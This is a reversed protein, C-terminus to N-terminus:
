HSTRVKTQLNKAVAEAESLARIINGGLVKKIEAVSYGRELLKKTINPYTSVDELGVPLTPVGDYDSGLGVSDIGAVKKVHDIHDIVTDITGKPSPNEKVWQKMKTRIQKKPLKQKQLQNKYAYYKKGHEFAKKDVYASYFNIMVVGRNEGIQKLINDPINRPHPLLAYASSHSAIIPAKSIKLTDAMTKVSVHSIDILM